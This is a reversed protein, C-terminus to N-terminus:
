LVAQTTLIWLLLTGAALFGLFQAAAGWLQRHTLKKQGVGSLLYPRNPGRRM